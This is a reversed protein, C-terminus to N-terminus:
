KRKRYIAAEDKEGYRVFEFGVELLKKEEELNRGVEMYWEVGEFSIL